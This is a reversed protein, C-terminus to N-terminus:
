DNEEDKEENKGQNQRREMNGADKALRERQKQNIYRSVQTSTVNMKCGYVYKDGVLQKRIIVGVLFILKGSRDEPFSLRILRGQYDELDEQLVFSFGTTSIDKIMVTVAKRNLGLQAVGEVAMSLRFSGRRNYDVADYKCKVKYASKEEFHWMSINVYKWVKPTAEEMYRVVNILIGKTTLNVVKNQIRIPELVVYDKGIELVEVEFEFKQEQIRFDLTVKEGVNLDTILM